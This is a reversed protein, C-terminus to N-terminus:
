DDNWSTKPPRDDYAYLDPDKAGTREQQGRVLDIILREASRCNNEEGSIEILRIGDHSSTNNDNKQPMFIKTSTQAAINKLTEGQKGIVLGVYKDFVKVCRLPNQFPNTEGIHIQSENSKRHEAIIAEIAEKAILYKDHPAEVFV